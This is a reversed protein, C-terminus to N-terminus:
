FIVSIDSDTVLSVCRNHFYTDLIYYSEIFIVIWKSDRLSKSIAMSVAVDRIRDIM